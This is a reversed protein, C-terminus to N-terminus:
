SLNYSFTHVVEKCIKYVLMFPWFVTFRLICSFIAFFIMKSAENLALYYTNSTIDFVNKKTFNSIFDSIKQIKLFLNDNM